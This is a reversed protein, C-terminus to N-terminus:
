ERGIRNHRIKIVVNIVQAIFLPLLFCVMIGFIVPAEATGLSGQFKIQKKLEVAQLLRYAAGKYDLLWEIILLNSMIFLMVSSIHSCIVGITNKFIHKYIVRARTLGKSYAVLVYQEGAQEECANRTVNALYMIPHISVLLSPLIFNFWHEHGFIDLFRMNYIIFWQILIILLFDPLSSTLWTTGRGVFSFWRNQYQYDLLGKLVGLIMSIFFTTIIIKMSRGFYRGIESEIPLGSKTEGLSQNEKLNTLLGVINDKYLESSFIYPNNIYDMSAARPVLILAVIGMVVIWQKLFLKYWPQKSQSRSAFYSVWQSLLFLVVFGLLIAIILEYEYTSSARTFKGTSHDILEFVHFAAGNYAFLWEIIFLNGVILLVIIHFKEFLSRINQLYGKRIIYISPVLAILIGLQLISPEQLFFPFWSLLVIYFLFNPVQIWTPIKSLAKDLLSKIGKERIIFLLLTTFTITLLLALFIVTFSKGLFFTAEDFVSAKLFTQGLSLTTVREILYSYIHHTYDVISFHYKVQFENVEVLNTQRPFMAVLLLTVVVLFYIIVLKTIQFAIKM